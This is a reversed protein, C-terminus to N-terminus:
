QYYHEQQRHCGALLLGKSFDELAAIGDVIPTRVEPEIRRLLSKQCVIINILHVTAIKIHHHAIVTPRLGIGRDREAIGQRVADLDDGGDIDSLVAHVLRVFSQRLLDHLADPLHVLGIINRVDMLYLDVAVVGGPATLAVIIKKLFDSLDPSLRERRGDAQM